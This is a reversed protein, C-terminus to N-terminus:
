QFNAKIQKHVDNMQENSLFKKNNKIWFENWIKYILNRKEPLYDDYGFQIGCYPCIEYSPSNESWPKFDLKSNCAPCNSM